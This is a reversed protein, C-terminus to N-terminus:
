EIETNNFYLLKATSLRVVEINWQELIFKNLVLPDRFLIKQNSHKNVGIYIEGERLPPVKSMSKSEM